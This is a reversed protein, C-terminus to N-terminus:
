IYLSIHYIYIHLIVTRIYIYICTSIIGQHQILRESQLKGLSRSGAVDIGSNWAEIDAIEEKAGLKTAEVEIRMRNLEKSLSRLTSLHREIAESKGTEVITNTKGISMKLQTVKIDLNAETAEM